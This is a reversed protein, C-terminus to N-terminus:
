SEKSFFPYDPSTQNGDDDEFYYGLDFPINLNLLANKIKELLALLEKENTNLTIDVNYEDENYTNIYLELDERNLEIDYGFVRAKYKIDSFVNKLSNVLDMPDVKSINGGVRYPM